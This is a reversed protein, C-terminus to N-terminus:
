VRTLSFLEVPDEFGKLMRRGAPDFRFASSAEATADRVDPTVLIEHPVASDAIRSALNVIPGYYDGGYSLLGGLALGGRPTVTSEGAGFPELLTLAVECLSSADLTVFMVEDGILKVVRGDHATVVDFARAEFEQVLEMLERTSLQHSLTTFGVLDVFGVGMEATDFSHHRRTMRSRRIATEVQFRFITDMAPPIAALLNVAEVNAQALALEGAQQEVLPAEVSSLFLWVASEAIRAMSSGMVRSFGLAAREGFLAAGTQAHIFTDAEAATFIREDHDVPPFGVARRWREVDEIAVAARNAIEGLTYREGPRLIHDALTAHLSRRAEGDVMQEITMGHGALYELLALRDTASESKPDYLGAREYDEVTPM